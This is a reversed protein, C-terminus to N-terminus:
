AHPPNRRSYGEINTQRARAIAASSGVPYPVHSSAAPAPQPTAATGQALMLSPFLLLVVALHLRLSM